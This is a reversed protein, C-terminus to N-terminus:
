AAEEKSIGIAALDRWTGDIAQSNVRDGFALMPITRAIIRLDLSLSTNYVYWIDMAAKDTPSVHRGGEIQAFGTMGPRVLLRDSFNATQDAPLLPRPGVFSMDGILVNYLQPLEDLRTRRLFRGIPSCREDDRVRQGNRDFAGCMTRFKYVRFMRGRRGPRWQCFLIPAGTDIAVALATVAFLPIGVILLMMAGVIDIARKATLYSRNRSLSIEVCSPPRPRSQVANASRCSSASFGIREHLFEVSVAGDKKLSSLVECAVPSLKEEPIAVVIRDVCIGEIELNRLVSGTDEPSGLIRYSRVLRGVHRENRGLVGAVAVGGADAAARLYLEAVANVGVLLVTPCRENTRRTTPFRNRRRTRSENWEHVLVRAGFMFGLMTSLHLLPLSRPVRALGNMLYAAATGGLVAFVAIGSIRRYDPASALRWITRHQGSGIIAFAAFALTLISYPLAEWYHGFEPAFDYRIAIALLTAAVILFLDVILLSAAKM